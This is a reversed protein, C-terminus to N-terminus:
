RAARALGARAPDVRGPRDLAGHPLPAELSPAVRLDLEVVTEGTPELDREARDVPGSDGFAVVRVRDLRPPMKDFTARGIPCPVPQYSEAAEDGDFFVVGLDRIPECSADSAPEGDVTWEIVIRLATDPAVCEGTRTCEGDACDADDECFSDRATLCGGALVSAFVWALVSFARPV